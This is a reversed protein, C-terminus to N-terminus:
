KQDVIENLTNRGEKIKQEAELISQKQEASLRRILDAYEDTSEGKLEKAFNSIDEGSAVMYHLATYLEKDEPSVDAEIKPENQESM